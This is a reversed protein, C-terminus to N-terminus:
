NTLACDQYSQPRLNSDQIAWKREIGDAKAEFFTAYSQPQPGFEQDHSTGSLLAWLAPKDDILHAATGPMWRAYVNAVTAPNDGLRKAVEGLPWQNALLITAHTHRLDHLRHHRLGLRKLDEAFAHTLTSPDVPETFFRGLPSKPRALLIKATGPDLEIRRRGRKTKTTKLGTEHRYTHIITLTYKGTQKDYVLNQEELAFLEGRRMGTAVLVAYHDHYATTPNGLLVTLESETLPNAAEEDAGIIRVKQAPNTKIVASDVADNLIKRLCRLIRWKTGFALDEDPNRMSKLNNVWNTIVDKKLEDLRYQGLNPLIYCNILSIYEKSTVPWREIYRGLTIIEDAQPEGEWSRSVECNESFQRRHSVLDLVRLMEVTIDERTLDRWDRIHRFVPFEAALNVLLNSALYPDIKEVLAPDDKPQLQSDTVITFCERYFYGGDVVNGQFKGPTHKIKDLNRRIVASIESLENWYQQKTGM